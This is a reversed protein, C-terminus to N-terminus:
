EVILKYLGGLLAELKSFKWAFYTLIVGGVLQFSPGIKERAINGGGALNMSAIVIFLVGLALFVLRLFGRLYGNM